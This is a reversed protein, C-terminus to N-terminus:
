KWCGSGTTNWCTETFEEGMCTGTAYVSVNSLREWYINGSEGPELRYISPLVTETPDGPFTRIITAYARLVINDYQRTGNNVVTITDNTVRSINLRVSGYFCYESASWTANGDCGLFGEFRTVNDLGLCADINTGGYCRNQEPNYTWGYILKGECSDAPPTVTSNWCSEGSRCVVTVNRGNCDGSVVIGDAEGRSFTLSRTSERGVFGTSAVVRGSTDRVFVGFLDDPGDSSITVGNESVTEISLTSACEEVPEPQVITSNTGSYPATQNAGDEVPAESDDVEGADPIEAADNEVPQLSSSSSSGAPSPQQRIDADGGLFQVGSFDQVSFLFAYFASAAVIVVAAIIIKKSDHVHEPQSGGKGPYKRKLEEWDTM